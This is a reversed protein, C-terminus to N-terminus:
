EKLEEPDEKYAEDMEEQDVEVRAKRDVWGKMEEFADLYSHNSKALKERAKDETFGFADMVQTVTYEEWKETNQELIPLEVHINKVLQAIALAHEKATKRYKSRATPLVASNTTVGIPSDFLFMSTKSLVAAIHKLADAFISLDRISHLNRHIQERRDRYKGDFDPPPKSFMKQLLPWSHKGLLKGTYLAIFANHDLGDHVRDSAHAMIGALFGLALPDSNFPIPPENPLMDGPPENLDPAITPTQAASETAKMQEKKDRSTKWERFVISDQKAILKRMRRSRKVAQITERRDPISAQLLFGKMAERYMMRSARVGNWEAEELIKFLIDGRGKLAAKRVAMELQDWKLPVGAQAFGRVLDPVADFDSPFKMLSVAHFFKTRSVPSHGNSKAELQVVENGIPFYLPEETLLSHSRQRYM